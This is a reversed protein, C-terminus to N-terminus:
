ESIVSLSMLFRRLLYLERYELHEDFSIRVSIKSVVSHSILTDSVIMFLMSDDQKFFRIPNLSKRNGEM